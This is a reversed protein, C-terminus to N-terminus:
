QMGKGAANFQSKMAVRVADLLVREDTLVAIIVREEQRCICVHFFDM